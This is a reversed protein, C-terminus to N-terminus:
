SFSNKDVMIKASLCLFHSLYKEFYLAFPAIVLFAVAHRYVVFVYNSMGKNMAAKSLIDMVAYGCQLSVVALVPKARGFLSQQTQQNEM